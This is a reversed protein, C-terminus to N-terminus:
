KSAECKAIAAYVGLEAAQDGTIVDLVRELAALLEDRQAVLKRIVQSTKERENYLAHRLDEVTFAKTLYDRLDSESQADTPQEPPRTPNGYLTCRDSSEIWAAKPKTKM